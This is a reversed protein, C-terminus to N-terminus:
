GDGEKEKLVAKFRIYNENLEERILQSTRDLEGSPLHSVAKGAFEVAKEVDGNQYHAEALTDLFQALDNEALGGAERAVQMMRNAYELARPPDRLDEPPCKLLTNAMRNLYVAKAEPSEVLPKQFALSEMVYDRSVETRGAEWAFESLVKLAHFYCKIKTESRYVSGKFQRLIELARKMSEEAEGSKGIAILSFTKNYHASYDNPKSALIKDYGAIAARPDRKYNALYFCLDSYRKTNRPELAAAKEFAGIARDIEKRDILTLGLNHHYNAVGPDIRIAREHHELAQDLQGLKRFAEGLNSHTAAHEPDGRLAEKYEEVAEETKGQRYLLVGLNMRPWAAGPTIRSAELYDSRAADPNKLKEHVLGRVCYARFFEGDLEIARNLFKQAEELEGRQYHVYGLTEQSEASGPDLEVSRKAAKLAQDLFQRDGM